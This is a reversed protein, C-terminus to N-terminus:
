ANKILDDFLFRMAALIQYIVDREAPGKLNRAYIQSDVLPNLLVTQMSYGISLIAYRERGSRTLTKLM